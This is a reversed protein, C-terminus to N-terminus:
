NSTISPQLKLCLPRVFLAGDIRLENGSDYYIYVGTTGGETVLVEDMAAVITLVASDAM